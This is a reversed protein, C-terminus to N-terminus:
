TNIKLNEDSNEQDESDESASYQDESDESASNKNEASALEENEASALEENETFQKCLYSPRPEGNFIKNALLLINSAGNM